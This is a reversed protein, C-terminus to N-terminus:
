SVPEACGDQRKAPISRVGRSGRGRLRRQHGRGVMSAYQQAIAAAATSPAFRAATASGATALRLRQAPDGALASIAEALATVDGPPVLLGDVGRTVVESPGGADSAIVPLGAAMGEIVVQGFPEAITSAHVLLDLEALESWVDPRFGRFDVRAEIGLDRVLAHLSAEYEDEGFMSSGIIRATLDHRRSADAFARLFVDQGKWPALRGLMGVVVHPPPASRADRHPLTDAPADVVDYVVSSPSPLTAATALSNVVVATPVVRSLIRVLRVAPVPLYDPSIRDRIHWLVPIGALRGAIGGYLAAKLSNTHVVDPALRRLVKQLRRVYGASDTVARLPLRGARVTEKRTDRLTPVMPLITVEAGANELQAVLPGDAGLVVLPTVSDGLADILRVLAVEGGSVEACHDVFAVRPRSAAARM